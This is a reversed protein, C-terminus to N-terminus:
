SINNVERVREVVMVDYVERCVELEMLSILWKRYCQRQVEYTTHIELLERNRQLDILRQRNAKNLTEQKKALIEAKLGDKLQEIEAADLLGLRLLLEAKHTVSYIDEKRCMSEFDGWIQEAVELDLEIQPPPLLAVPKTVKFRIEEYKNAVDKRFKRYAKMVKALFRLNLKNYAEIPEPYEDMVCMKLAVEVEAFSHGKYDNTLAEILFLEEAEDPTETIGLMSCWSLLKLGWEKKGFYELPYECILTHEHMAHLLQQERQPLLQM